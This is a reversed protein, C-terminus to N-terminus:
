VAILYQLGPIKISLAVTCSVSSRDQALCQGASSTSRSMSTSMNADRLLGLLVSKYYDYLFFPKSSTMETRLLVISVNTVCGWNKMPNWFILQFGFFIGTLYLGYWIFFDRIRWRLRKNEIYSVTSNHNLIWVFCMLASPGFSLIVSSYRFSAVQM